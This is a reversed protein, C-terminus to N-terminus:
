IPSKLKQTAIEVGFPSSEPVLTESTCTRTQKVDNIGHVNLLQSLYNKCM